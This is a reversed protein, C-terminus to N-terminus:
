RNVYTVILDGSKKFTVKVSFGCCWDYWVIDRGFLGRDGCVEPVGSCCAPLCVPVDVACGTCPNQVQLITKITSNCGACRHNRGLHRYDICPSPCCKPGCSAAPGYLEGQLNSIAQAASTRLTTAERNLRTLRADAQPGLGAVAVVAAVLAAWRCFLRLFTM